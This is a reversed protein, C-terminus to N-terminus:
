SGYWDLGNPLDDPSCEFHIVRRNKPNTGRSSAHLILPRMILCDGKKVSCLRTENAERRLKIEAAGLRGGRHSKPIVKLAGNTEDADDLHFRLAIMKELIEIPPQVHEIGAKRTWAAFGATEKKERVAITLDQHWPVKWNAGPTKDFFIARVVRAKEGLLSEAIRRVAPSLSFDRIAPALNLLNRVGYVAENKRSVSESAPLKALTRRLGSVTEADLANELVGFGNEDIEATNM